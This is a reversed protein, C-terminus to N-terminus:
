LTSAHTLNRSVLYLISGGLIYSVVDFIDAVGLNLVNPYYYEFFLSFLIIYFVIEKIQINKYIRFYMKEQLICFVPILAIPALIDFYYNSTELVNISPIILFLLKGLIYLLCSIVIIKIKKM